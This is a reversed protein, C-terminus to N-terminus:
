EGKNDSINAEISYNNKKHANLILLVAINKVPVKGDKDILKFTVSEPFNM